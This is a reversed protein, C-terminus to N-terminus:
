NLIFARVFLNKTPQLKLQKRLVLLEKQSFGDAFGGRAKIWGFKQRIEEIPENGRLAREFYYHANKKKPFSIDGINKEVDGPMYKPVEKHLIKNYYHEFGHTLWVFSSCLVFIDYIERLKDKEKVSSGTTKMIQKIGSLRLDECRKVVEFVKDPGYKKLEGEFIDWVKESKYWSGNQFLIAPWEVDVGAKLMYERSQGGYASMM